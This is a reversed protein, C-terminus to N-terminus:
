TSLMGRVNEIVVFKPQLIEIATAMQAWMESRTGPALGTRRGVTSVDQCPLGGCLIDM